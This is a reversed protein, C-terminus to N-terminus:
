SYAGKFVQTVQVVILKIAICYYRVYILLCHDCGFFKLLACDGGIESTQFLGMGSLHCVLFNLPAEVKDIAPGDFIFLFFALLTLRVRCQFPNGVSFFPRNSLLERCIIRVLGLLRKFNRTPWILLSLIVHSLLYSDDLSRWLSCLTLGATGGWLHKQGCLVRGPLVTLNRPLSVAMSPVTRDRLMHKSMHSVIMWIPRRLLLLLLLRAWLVPLEWNGRLGRSPLFVYIRIVLVLM